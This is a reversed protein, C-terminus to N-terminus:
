CQNDKSREIKEKYEFYRDVIECVAVSVFVITLFIWEM